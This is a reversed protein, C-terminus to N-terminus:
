HSIQLDIDAAGFAPPPEALANAADRTAVPHAATGAAEFHAEAVDAVLMLVFVDQMVDAVDFFARPVRM